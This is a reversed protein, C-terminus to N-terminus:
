NLQVSTLRLRSPDLVTYKPSGSSDDKLQFVITYCGKGTASATSSAWNFQYGSSVQRFNSGGTAGTAPSYITTPSTGSLSPLCSGSVPAGNFLTTLTALSSM